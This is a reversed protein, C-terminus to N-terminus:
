LNQKEMQKFPRSLKIIFPTVTFDAILASLMAVVMLIGMIVMSHVSSTMFASFTACLIVNALILAKGVKIFSNKISREYSLTRTYDLKVHNIFHITDDVALGMVMPAITMTVFELPEGLFGMLGGTIIVPTINPIMAILGLKINKFVIMMMISIVLLATLVSQILGRTIYQNMISLQIVGGTLLYDFGSYDAEPFLRSIEINLDDIHTKTRLTSVDYMEVLIRLTKNEEDIWPDISDEMTRGAYTVLGRVQSDKEPISFYEDSNRHRIKNVEKIIDNISTTRKVFDDQGIYDVLEDVKKLIDVTLAGNKEPFRLAISYANTAGISSDSIYNQDIAHQLKEGMMQRTNLDVRLRSIGFLSIIIVAIFIVTLLKGNSLVIESYKGLTKEIKDIGDNSDSINKTKELLEPKDGRLSILASFLLMSMTYVVTISIGSVIGVWQIATIPVLVFSLLASITTFATFMIPWGTERIAYIVSNKREGTLLLNRKYFNFIHITYGVSVAISLLIPILMFTTDVTMDFWGMVGFVSSISIGIVLVAGVVGSFSRIIIIILILALLAALGIVIFLDGMMEITKRYELVPVGTALVSAGQSQYKEVIKMVSEGVTYSPDNIETWENDSPYTSLSCLIWAQRYDESYLKGRVSQRLDLSNRTKELSEISIEDTFSYISSVSDIIAVDSQLDSSISKLLNMTEVSFVDNSEVLVGVFDSNGFISDFEKQDKIVQDDELFLNTISVSTKLDKLGISALTGVTLIIVILMWRRRVILEGLNNFFLEIKSM